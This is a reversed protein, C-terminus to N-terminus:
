DKAMQGDPPEVLSRTEAIWRQFREIGQEMKRRASINASHVTVVPPVFGKTIVAEELWLVVDYGTGRQDDGLDHDLSVAEVDGERLAAIVEQPWRALLWGDPPSREDDLYIRKGEQRSIRVLKGVHFKELASSSVLFAFVDLDPSGDEKCKRPIQMGSFPVGGLLAREGTPLAFSTEDEGQIRRAFVCGQRADLNTMAEVCFRM